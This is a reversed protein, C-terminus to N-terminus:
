QPTGALIQQIRDTSALIGAGPGPSVPAALYALGESVSVLNPDIPSNAQLAIQYRAYFEKVLPDASAKIAIMEQATFAMYFATPTLLPLTTPASFTVSGDPNETVTYGEGVAIGADVEYIAVGSASSSLTVSDQHAIAVGVVVGNVAFVQQIM